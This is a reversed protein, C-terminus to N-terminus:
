LMERVKDRMAMIRHRAPSLVKSGSRCPVPTTGLRHKFRYIGHLPDDESAASAPVGGRNLTVFGDNKFAQVAQWYLGSQAGLKYGADTSGSFMSYAKAAFTAFFLAAIPEGDAKALFLRALGPALLAEFLDEYFSEDSQLDYGQNSRRRRELASERALKLGRLDTMSAGEELSVGARELRKIRDRQDKKIRKWIDDLEGTLDVEFEVRGPGAYGLGALDLASGGSMNSNVSLRACGAQRAFRECGHMMAVLQGADDGAAIPYTPLELSRAVASLLPNSSQRYFGVAMSEPTSAGGPAAFFVPECHQARQQYRSWRTSHFINGGLRIVADDWWPPATGRYVQLESATASSATESM